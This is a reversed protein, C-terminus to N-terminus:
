LIFRFNFILLTYTDHTDSPQMDGPLMRVYQIIVPRAMEHFRWDKRSIFISSRNSVVGHSSSIRTNQASGPAGPRTTRDSARTWKSSNISHDTPAPPPEDRTQMFIRPTFRTGRLRSATFLDSHCSIPSVASLHSQSRSPSPHLSPSLPWWHWKVHVTYRLKWGWVTMWSVCCSVCDRQVLVSICLSLTHTNTHTHCTLFFQTFACLFFDVLIM